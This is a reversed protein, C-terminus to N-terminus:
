TEKAPTAPPTSPPPPAPPPPLEGHIALKQKKGMTHRAIRTAKAKAVKVTLKPVSLPEYPKDTTIGFRGLTENDNGLAGKVATRILKRRALAQTEIAARDSLAVRYKEEADEVAKYAAAYGNLETVLGTVLVSKGGVILSDGGGPPSTSLGHSLDLLEQKIFGPNDKHPM